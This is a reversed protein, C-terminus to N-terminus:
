TRKIYFGKIKGDEKIVDVVVFLEKNSKSRTIELFKIKFCYYLLINLM